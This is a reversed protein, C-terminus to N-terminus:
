AVRRFTFGWPTDVMEGVVKDNPAIAFRGEQGDASVSAGNSDVGVPLGLFRFPLQCQDCAVRLDLSYGVVPGEDGDTIRNVEAVTYFSEHKCADM